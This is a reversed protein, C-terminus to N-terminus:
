VKPAATLEYEHKTQSLNVLEHDHSPKTIDVVSGASILTGETSKIATVSVLAKGVEFTDDL